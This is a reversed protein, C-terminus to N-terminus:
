AQSAAHVPQYDAFYQGSVGSVQPSTALYVSTQAGEQPSKAFLGAIRMGVRYLWGNNIAFNSGVFGPHLANATVASGELRRALEFTFLLNALKSRGYVGFGMRDYSHESQLDDFDLRAGAHAGSAVNVIRAEGHQAATSELLDRLLSTLLFYSLHNLAFTLEFGDPSLQRAAFYGGANNLLVDLRDYRERFQQALRRVQGMDSLNALLYACDPNGVAQIGAVVQQCRAESRGVVVVTAGMRALEEASARGIGSTAGTILITKNQM